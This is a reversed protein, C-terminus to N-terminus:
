GSFLLIPPARFLEPRTSSFREDRGTNSGRSKRGATRASHRTQPLRVTQCDVSIHLLVEACVQKGLPLFICKVDSQTKKMFCICIFCYVRCIRATNVNCIIFFTSDLQFTIACAYFGSRTKRAFRVLGNLDARHPRWNLRSSAALTHAMLPLSAPYV